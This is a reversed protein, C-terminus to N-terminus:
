TKNLRLKAMFLEPALDERRFDHIEHEQFSRLDKNKDSRFGMMKSYLDKKAFDDGVLSGVVAKLVLPHATNLNIEGFGSYVTLFSRLGELDEFPIDELLYLEEFSGIREKQRLKMVEKIWDKGDTKLPRVEDGYLELFKKLIGESVANLDLKSEEDSILISIREEWADELNMRGYWIDQLSDEHPYPDELIVSEALYLGSIFDVKNEFEAIGRDQLLIVQRSQFCLKVVIVSFISIM